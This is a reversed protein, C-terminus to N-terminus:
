HQERRAEAPDLTGVDHYGCSTTSCALGILMEAFPCSPVTEEAGSV